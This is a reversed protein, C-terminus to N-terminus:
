PPAVPDAHVPDDGGGDFGPVVGVPDDPRQREGGIMHQDRRQLAVVGGHDLGGGRDLGLEFGGAIVDEDIVAVLAGPDLELVGVQDPNREPDHDTIAPELFAVDLDLPPGFGGRVGHRRGRRGLRDLGFQVLRDPRAPSDRDLPM